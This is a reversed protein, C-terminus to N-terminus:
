GKPHFLNMQGPKVKNPSKRTGGGSVVNVTSNVYLERAVARNIEPDLTYAASYGGAVRSPSSVRM